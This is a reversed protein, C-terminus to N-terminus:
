DNFITKQIAFTQQLKTQLQKTDDSEPNNTVWTVGQGYLGKVSIRRRTTERTTLFNKEEDTLNEPPKIKIEESHIYDRVDSSPYGLQYGVRYNRIYDPKGNNHKKLQAGLPDQAFESIEEEKFAESARMAEVTKQLNIVLMLAVNKMEPLTINRIAELQENRLTLIGLQDSVQQIAVVDAKSLGANKKIFGLKKEELQPQVYSMPKIGAIVASVDSDLFFRQAEKSLKQSEFINKLELFQDKIQEQEEQSLGAFFIPDSQDTTESTTTLSSDPQAELDPVTTRRVVESSEIITTTPTEVKYTKALDDLTPEQGSTTHLTQDLDRVPTIKEPDTM